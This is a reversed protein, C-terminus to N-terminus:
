LSMDDYCAGTISTQLSILTEINRKVIMQSVFRNVFNNHAALVGTHQSLTHVNPSSYTEIWKSPSGFLFM